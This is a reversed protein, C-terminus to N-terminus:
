AVPLISRPPTFTTPLVFPIWDARREVPPKVAAGKAAKRKAKSEGGARRAEAQQEQATVARVM